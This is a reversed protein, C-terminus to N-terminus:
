SVVSPLWQRAGALAGSGGIQDTSIVQAPREGSAAYIDIHTEREAHPHTCRVRTSM